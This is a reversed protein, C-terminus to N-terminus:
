GDKLATIFGIRTRNVLYTRPGVEPRDLLTADTVPIFRTKALLLDHLAGGPVVHINGQIWYPGVGLLARSAEKKIYLHALGSRDTRFEPSLDAILFVEQMYILYEDSRVAFAKGNLGELTADRLSFVEDDRRLVLHNSLRDQNTVLIGKVVASHLYVELPMTYTLGEDLAM